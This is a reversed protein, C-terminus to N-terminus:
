HVLKDGSYYFYSFYFLLLFFCISFPSLHFSLLNCKAAIPELKNEYFLENPISLIHPHSRYNKVLQTISAVNFTGTEPNRSYLDENCLQELWSTNFGLQMARNSRTVADLQKPDGSLIIKAHVKKVSTCLGLFSFIIEFKRKRLGMLIFKGAIPILCMTEHASACEDIIVYDFHDPKWVNKDIRARSLCGASCLTCVIVRFKYLFKLSPYTIKGNSYNSIHAIRPNIREYKFSKAFMRFM